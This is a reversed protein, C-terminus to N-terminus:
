RNDDCRAVLALPQGWRLADSPLGCDLSVLAMARPNGALDVVFVPRRPVAADAEGHSATWVRLAAAGARNVLAMTWGKDFGLCYRAERVRNDEGVELPERTSLRDFRWLGARGADFASVANGDGRAIWLSASTSPPAVVESYVISGAFNYATM